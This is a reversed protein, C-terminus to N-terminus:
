TRLFGWQRLLALGEDATRAIAYPVKADTEQCWREFIKQNDSQRGVASKMEICASKDHRMFVFDPAGPIKGMMAVIKGYLKQRNNANENEPHFWVCELEGSDTYARLKNAFEICILQEPKFTLRDLVYEPLPVPYLITRLSSRLDGELLEKRQYFKYLPKTM